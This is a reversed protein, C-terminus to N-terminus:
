NVIHAYMKHMRLGNKSKYSNECTDCKFPREESHIMMHNTVNQKRKFSLDCIPCKFTNVDTHSKQHDTYDIINSFTKNCIICSMNKNCDEQININLIKSKRQHILIHKKLIITKKFAKDCIKCKFPREESHTPKHKSLNLKTKFAKFCVPCKYTKEDSHLGTHEILDKNSYFAKVCFNCQFIKGLEGHNKMHAVLYKEKEFNRGCVTCFHKYEINKRTNKGHRKMHAKLYKQSEFNKSCLLCFHKYDTVINIDPNIEIIEPKESNENIYKTNITNEESELQIELFDAASKIYEQVFSEMKVTKTPFDIFINIKVEFIFTM